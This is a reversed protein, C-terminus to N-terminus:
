LPARTIKALKPKKAGTFALIEKRLGKAKGLHRAIEKRLPANVSSVQACKVFRLLVTISLQQSTICSHTVRSCSQLDTSLLGIVSVKMASVLVRGRQVTKHLLNGASPLRIKAM